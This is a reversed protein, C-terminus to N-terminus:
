LLACKALDGVEEAVDKAVQARWKVATAVTEVVGSLLNLVEAIPAGEEMQEVFTCSTGHECNEVLGSSKEACVFLAKLAKDSM